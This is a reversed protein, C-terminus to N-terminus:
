MCNICIFSNEILFRIVEHLSMHPSNHLSKDNEIYNLRTENNEDNKHKVNLSSLVFSSIKYRKRELGNRM